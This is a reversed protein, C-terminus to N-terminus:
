FSHFLLMLFPNSNLDLDVFVNRTSNIAIFCILWITKFRRFLAISYVVASCCHMYISDYHLYYSSNWSWIVIESVPLPISLSKPSFSKWFYRSWVCWFYRQDPTLWKL